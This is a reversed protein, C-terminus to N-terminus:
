DVLNEAAFSARAVAMSYEDKWAVTEDVWVVVLSYALLAVKLAVTDHGM